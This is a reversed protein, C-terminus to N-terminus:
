DADLLFLDGDWRDLLPIVFGRLPHFELGQEPEDIEMAVFEADNKAVGLAHDIFQCVVQDRLPERGVPEVAPDRLRLPRPHHVFEFLRFELEEHGGIDGGAADIDIVEFKHHIEIQGVIGLVVHM